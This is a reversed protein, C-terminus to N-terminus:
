EGLTPEATDPSRKNIEYFLRITRIIQRIIQQSMTNDATFEASSAAHDRM